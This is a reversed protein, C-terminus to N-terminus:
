GPPGSTTGPRTVADAGNRLAFRQLKGTPTRPLRDVVTVARPIKHSEVAFAARAAARVAEVVLSPQRDPTPVVYAYLRTRGEGDPRGVVAVEAVSDCAALLAEIEIPNVKVGNVTEVDDVRGLVAYHGGLRVARDKTWLWGDHVVEASPGPADLYGRMMSPGRVWLDGEQDDATLVEGHERLELEYGDIPRGATGAVIDSLRNACYTYGMETSGLCDLMPADLLASAAARTAVQLREGGSVGVRVSRFADQDAVSALRAYLSPVTFLVTVQHERCRAAIKEPTPPVLSVAARAGTALPFVVSNVFGYAFFMRSASLCVDEPTLGLVRRGFASVYSLVHAHTHLAGKPAGTTGSTYQVYLPTEPRVAIPACPSRGAAEEELAAPPVGRPDRDSLLLEPRFHGHLQAAAGETLDTSVIAVLAGLRACALFAVVWSVSDRAALAVRSGEGIGLGRLADAAKASREHVELHTVPERDDGLYAVREGYGQAGMRDRLAWAVNHVESLGNRTM